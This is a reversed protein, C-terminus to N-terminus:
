SHAQERMDRFWEVDAEVTPNFHKWTLGCHGFLFHCSAKGPGDECLTILNDASLELDRRLHYPIRHHVNLSKKGGCAECVPHEKLHAVRVKPWDKSRREPARDPHEPGIAVPLITHAALQISRLM